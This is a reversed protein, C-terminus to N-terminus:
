SSEKPKLEFLLEGEHFFGAAKNDCRITIGNHAGSGAALIAGAIRHSYGPWITVPYSSDDCRITTIRACLQDALSQIMVLM